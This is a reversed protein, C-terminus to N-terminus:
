SLVQVQTNETGRQKNHVTQVVFQRVSMVNLGNTLLKLIELRVQCNQTKEQLPSTAEEPLASVNRRKFMQDDKKAKRLEVNVEVRRRRLEKVDLPKM